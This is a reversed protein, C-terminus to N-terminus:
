SHGSLTVVVFFLDVSNDFRGVMDVVYMNDKEGLVCRIVLCCAAVTM